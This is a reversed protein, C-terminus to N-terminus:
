EEFPIEKKVGGGGGEEDKGERTRVVATNMGKAAGCRKFIKDSVRMLM